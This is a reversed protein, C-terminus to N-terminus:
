ADPETQAAAPGLTMRAQPPPLEDELMPPVLRAHLHSKHNPAHRIVGRVSWTLRRTRPPFLAEVASKDLGVNVTVYERLVDILSQDLLGFQLQGTDLLSRVLIWTAHVDLREPPVDVFGGLPQRADDMFLGLDVDIGLHHTSHGEMHGGGKRSIDGILLPDALPLELALREAVVQLTSVVHASAFSRAPDWRQYLGDQKPLQWNATFKYAPDVSPGEGSVDDQASAACVWALLAVVAGGESLM